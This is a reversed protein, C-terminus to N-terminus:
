FLSICGRRVSVARAWASDTSLPKLGLALHGQGTMFIRMLSMITKSMEQLQQVCTTSSASSQSRQQAWAYGKLVKVKTQTWQAWNPM